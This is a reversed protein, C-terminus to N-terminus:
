PLEKLFVQYKRGANRYYNIMKDIRIKDFEFKRDLFLFANFAM